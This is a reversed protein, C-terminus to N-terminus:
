NIEIDGMFPKRYPKSYFDKIFENTFYLELNNEMGEDTIKKEICSWFRDIIWNFLVLFLYLAPFYIVAFMWGLFFTLAVGVLIGFVFFLTSQEIPAILFRNIAKRKSIYNRIKEESSISHSEETILAEQTSLFLRDYCVDLSIRMKERSIYLKEGNHINTIRYKSNIALHLITTNKPIYSEYCHKLTIETINDFIEIEKNQFADLLIIEKNKIEIVVPYHNQNIFYIQM